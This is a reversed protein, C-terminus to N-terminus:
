GLVAKLASLGLPTTEAALVLEDAPTKILRPRTDDIENAPDPSHSPVYRRTPSLDSERQLQRIEACEECFGKVLLSRLWEQRRAKPLELLRLILLAELASAADLTLGVRVSPKQNRATM